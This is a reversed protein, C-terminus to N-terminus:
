CKLTTGKSVKGIIGNNTGAGSRVEIYKGYGKRLKSKKLRRM